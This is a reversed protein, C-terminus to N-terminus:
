GIKVIPIDRKERFACGGIFSCIALRERELGEMDLNMRSQRTKEAQVAMEKQALKQLLVVAM